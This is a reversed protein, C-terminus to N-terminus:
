PRIIHATYTSKAKANGGSTQASTFILEKRAPLAAPSLKYPPQILFNGNICFAARTAKATSTTAISNKNKEFSSEGQPVYLGTAYSLLYNFVKEGFRPNISIDTENIRCRGIYHSTYVTFDKVSRNDIEVNSYTIPCLLDSNNRYELLRIINVKGEKYQKDLAELAKLANGPTVKKDGITEGQINKNGIAEWQIGNLLSDKLIIYNQENM